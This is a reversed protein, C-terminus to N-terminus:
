GRCGQGSSGQFAGAQYRLTMEAGTIKGAKTAALRVDMVAGSTPGSALFVEERSMVSPLRAPRKARTVEDLWPLPQELVERYLFLIASLAQGQTAAVLARVEDLYERVYAGKNRVLKRGVLDLAQIGNTGEYIQAIRTDRVLQEM